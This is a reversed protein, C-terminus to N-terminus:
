SLPLSPLALTNGFLAMGSYVMSTAANVPGFNLLSELMMMGSGGYSALAADLGKTTAAYGFLVDKLDGVTNVQGDGGLLNGTQDSGLGPFLISGAWAANNQFASDNPLTTAFLTDAVGKADYGAIQEITPLVGNNAIIAKITNVAVVNSAQQIMQESITLGRLAGQQQTYSRILVSVEGIGANANTAATFWRAVNNVTPDTVFNLQDRIYAYVDAYNSLNGNAANRLKAADYLSNIEALQTASFTFSM